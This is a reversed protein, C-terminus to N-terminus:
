GLSHIMWVNPEIYIGEDAELDIEVLSLAQPVRYSDSKPFDLGTWTEWESVNGRITMSRSAVKAITAGAREHVRLWDDFLLGDERRRQIYEDMPLKPFKYKRNPRVPAILTDFKYKQANFRMLNLAVRSLGRGRYEPLISIELACLMNPKQHNHHCQIGNEFAWDWGEDPLESFEGAFHIPISKIRGIFTEGDLLYLQFDGYLDHMEDWYRNAIPDNLMFEPWLGSGFNAPQQLNDLQRLETETYVTYETISQEM